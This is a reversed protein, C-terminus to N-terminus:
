FTPQGSNVTRRWRKYLFFGTIWLVLGLIGGLPVSLIAQRISCQKSYRPIIQNGRVEYWSTTMRNKGDVIVEFSQHNDSLQTVKFRWLTPVNPYVPNGKEALEQNMAAEQEIPLLFSAERHEKLFSELELRRVIHPKGENVVLVNLSKIADSNLTWKAM